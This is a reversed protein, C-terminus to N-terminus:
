VLVGFISGAWSSTNLVTLSIVPLVTFCARHEWHVRLKVILLGNIAKPYKHIWVHGFFMLESLEKSFRSIMRPRVFRYTGQLSGGYIWLWQMVPCSNTERSNLIIWPLWLIKGTKRKKRNWKEKGEITTDATHNKRLQIDLVQAEAGESFDTISVYDNNLVLVQAVCVFAVPRSQEFWFALTSSYPIDIDGSTTFQFKNGM